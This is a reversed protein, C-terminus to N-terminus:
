ARTGFLSEIIEFGEAACWNQIHQLDEVEMELRIVVYHSNKEEDFAAEIECWADHHHNDPDPDNQLSAAFAEPDNERVFAAVREETMYKVCTVDIETGGHM